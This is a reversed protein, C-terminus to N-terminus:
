QSPKKVELFFVPLSLKSFFIRFPSFSKKLRVLNARIYHAFSNARSQSAPEISFSFLPSIEFLPRQFIEGQSYIWDAGDVSKGKTRDQVM